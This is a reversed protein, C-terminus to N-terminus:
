LYYMKFNVSLFCNSVPLYVSCPWLVKFPIAVMSQTGKISAFIVHIKSVLLNNLLFMKQIAVRMSYYAIYYYRIYFPFM